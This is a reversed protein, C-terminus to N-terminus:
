VFVSGNEEKRGEECEDGGVLNRGDYRIMFALSYEKDEPSSIGIPGNLETFPSIQGDIVKTRWREIVVLWRAPVIVGYIFHSSM